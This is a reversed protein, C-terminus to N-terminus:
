VVVTPSATVKSALVVNEVDASSPWVAGAAVVWSSSSVVTTQVARGQM